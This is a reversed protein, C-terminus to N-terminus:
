KDDEEATEEQGPTKPPPPPQRRKDPDWLQIGLDTGPAMWNKRDLKGGDDTKDLGVSYIV